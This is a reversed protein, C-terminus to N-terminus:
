FKKMYWEATIKLGEKLQIQAVFGTLEKLKDASPLRRKVSGKPAKQVDLKAEFNLINLLMSALDVIKIEKTKSSNM